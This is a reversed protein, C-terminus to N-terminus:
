RDLVSNRSAHEYRLESALKSQGLVGVEMKTISGIITADVPNIKFDLSKYVSGCSHLM